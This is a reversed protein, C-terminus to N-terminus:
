DTSKRIVIDDVMFRNNAQAKAYFGIVTAPTANRVIFSYEQWTPSLDIETGDIEASGGNAIKIVLKANQDATANESWRAAKFTVRIDDSEEIATLPPTALFGDTSGATGIKPYGPREYVRMGTWGELGRQAVFSPHMTNFYDGTGDTNPSGSVALQPNEPLVRKGDVTPWEGVLQLGAAKGVHDGGLVLQDFHQELYIVSGPDVAHVRTELSAALGMFEVKLTVTGATQPTGSLPVELNGAEEALQLTVHSPEIGAAGPGEVTLAVEIDEDIVGRTYPIIVAAGALAVDKVLTKNLTPEGLVMFGEAQVLDIYVVQGAANIAIRGNRAAGTNRKAEVTVVERTKGDGTGSSPTLTIWDTEEASVNWDGNTCVTFTQSSAAYGFSLKDTDRLVFPLESKSCAGMYILGLVCILNNVIRKM